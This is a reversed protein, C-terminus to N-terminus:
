SAGSTAAAPGPPVSPRRDRCRLPEQRVHPAGRRLANGCPSDVPPVPRLRGAPCRPPHTTPAARAGPVHYKGGATLASADAPHKLPHTIRRSSQYLYCDGATVRRAPRLCPVPKPHVGGWRAHPRPAAPRLARGSRELRRNARRTIISHPPLCRRCPVSGDVTKRIQSCPPPLRMLHPLPATNALSRRPCPCASSM